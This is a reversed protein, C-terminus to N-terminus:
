VWLPVFRSWWYFGLTINVARWQRETRLIKALLVGSLCWLTLATLAALAFGGGIILALLIPNDALGVFSAGAAFSMAWAKPNLLLLAFGTIFGIPSSSQGEGNAQMHEGSQPQGAKGIRWALWLLYLSGIVKMVM